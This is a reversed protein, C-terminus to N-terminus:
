GKRLGDVVFCDESSDKDGMLLYGNNTLLDLLHSGNKKMHHVELSFFKPKIAQDLVAPLVQYEAGEIDLKMWQEDSIEPVECNIAFGPPNEDVYGIQSLDKHFYLTTTKSWLGLNRALSNINNQKLNILLQAFNEEDPEYATIRIGPFYANALVSFMGINAGGDIVSKPKFGPKTYIEAILEGGVTYDGENGERMSFLVPRGAIVLSVQLQGSVCRKNLQRLWWARALDRHTGLKPFGALLFATIKDKFSKGKRSLKLTDTLTALTSM